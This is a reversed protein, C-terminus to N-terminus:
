RARCFDEPTDLDSRGQRATPLASASDTEFHFFHATRERATSALALAAVCNTMAAGTGICIAGFPPVAM